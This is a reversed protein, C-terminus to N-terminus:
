TDALSVRVTTSLKVRTNLFCGMLSHITDKIQNQRLVWRYLPKQKLRPNFRLHHALANSYDYYLYPNLITPPLPPYAPLHWHDAFHAPGM